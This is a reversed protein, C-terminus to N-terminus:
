RNYAFTTPGVSPREMELMHFVNNWSNEWYVNGPGGNYENVYMFASHIEIILDITPKGIFQYNLSLCKDIEEPYNDLNLVHFTMYNIDQTKKLYGFARRLLVINVCFQTVVSACDEGVVQDLFHDM